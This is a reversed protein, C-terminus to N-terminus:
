RRDFLRGVDHVHDVLRGIETSAIVPGGSIQLIAIALLLAAVIPFGTGRVRNAQRRAAAVKTSHM